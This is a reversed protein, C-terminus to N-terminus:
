GFDNLQENLFFRRLLFWQLGFSNEPEPDVKFSPIVVWWHLALCRRQISFISYFEASKFTFELPVFNSIVALEDFMPKKSPFNLILDPILFLRFPSYSHSHMDSPQDISKPPALLSSVHVCVSFHRTFRTFDDPVLQASICYLEVTSFLRGSGCLLFHFLLLFFWSCCVFLRQCCFTEKTSLIRSFSSVFFKDRWWSHPVESPNCWSKRLRVVRGLWHFVHIGCTKFVCM